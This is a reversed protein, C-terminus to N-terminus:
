APSISPYEIANPQKKLKSIENEFFSELTRSIRISTSDYGYYKECVYFIKRVDSTLQEAKNMNKGSGYKKDKLKQLIINFNLFGGSYEKM